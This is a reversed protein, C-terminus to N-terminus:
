YLQHLTARPSSSGRKSSGTYQWRMEFNLRKNPKHVAAINPSYLMNSLPWLPPRWREIDVYFYFTYAIHFNRENKEIILCISLGKWTTYWHLRSYIFFFVFMVHAFWHLLKRPNGHFIHLLVSYYAAKWKWPFKARMCGGFMCVGFCSIAIESVVTFIVFVCVRCVWVCRAIVFFFFIICIYKLLLLIHISVASAANEKKCGIIRYIQIM